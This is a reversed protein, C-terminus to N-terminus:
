YNLDYQREQVTERKEYFLVWQRIISPIRARENSYTKLITRM